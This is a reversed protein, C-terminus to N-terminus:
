HSPQTQHPISKGAPITKLLPALDHTTFDSSVQIPVYTKNSEPTYQKATLIPIKSHFNFIKEKIMTSITSFDFSPIPISIKSPTTPIRTQTLVDM